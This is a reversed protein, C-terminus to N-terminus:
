REQEKKELVKQKEKFSDEKKSGKSDKTSTKGKKNKSDKEDEPPTTSAVPQAPQAAVIPEPEPEAAFITSADVIKIFNHPFIGEAGDPKVGRWWGDDAKELIAVYEGLHLPLEEADDTEYEFM